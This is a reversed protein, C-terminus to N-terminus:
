LWFHPWRYVIGVDDNCAQHLKIRHVFIDLM